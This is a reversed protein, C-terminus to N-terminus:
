SGPMPKDSPGVGTGHIHTSAHTPTTTSKWTLDKETSIDGTTEYDGTQTIKGTVEVDAEIVFKTSKCSIKNDEIVFRTNGSENCIILGDGDFDSPPSFKKGSLGYAVSTNEPSFLRGDTRDQSGSLGKEISHSAFSLWVLDGKRYKPRIIFGGAHIFGVPIDPVVVFPVPKKGSETILLLPTVDARMTNTKHSEIRAVCGILMERSYKDCYQHFLLALENAASM